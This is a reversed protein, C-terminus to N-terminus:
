VANRGRMALSHLGLRQKSRRRLWCAAAALTDTLTICVKKRARGKWRVAGVRRRARAWRLPVRRGLCCIEHVPSRQASGGSCSSGRTIRTTAQSRSLTDQPLSPPIGPMSMAAGTDRFRCMLRACPKGRSLLVILARMEDRASRWLLVAPWNAGAAPGASNSFNYECVDVNNMKRESHLMHKFFHSHGVVVIRMEPQDALWKEFEHIRGSVGM